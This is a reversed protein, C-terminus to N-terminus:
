LFAEDNIEESTCSRSWFVSLQNSTNGIIIIIIGDDNFQFITANNIIILGSSFLSM